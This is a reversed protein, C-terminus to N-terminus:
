NAEQESTTHSAKVKFLCLHIYTLLQHIADIERERWLYAHYMRPPCLFVQVRLDAM